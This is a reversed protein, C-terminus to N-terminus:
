DAIGAARNQQDVTGSLRGQDSDEGAEAAIGPGGLREAEADIGAVEVEIQVCRDRQRILQLISLRLGMVLMPAASPATRASQREVRSAPHPVSSVGGGSAGCAAGCGRAAGHCAATPSSSVPM